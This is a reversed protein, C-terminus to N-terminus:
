HDQPFRFEADWGHEPCPCAIHVELARYGDHPELCAKLSEPSHIRLDCFECRVM